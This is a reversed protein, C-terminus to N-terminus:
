PAPFASHIQGILGILWDLTAPDFGRVNFPVAVLGGQRLELIGKWGGQLLMQRLHMPLAADGEQRSPVTVDFRQEFTPDGLAGGAQKSNFLSSLGFGIEDVVGSGGGKSRVAARAPFRPSTLFAFVHRDEGTARKVPDDELGELVWLAAEGFTARLERAATTIRYAYICPYWGQYWRLDPANGLQYGRAAAWDQLARDAAYPDPGAPQPGAGWAAPAAPAAAPAQASPVPPYARPPAGPPPGGAPPAPPQQAMPAFCVRAVAPIM